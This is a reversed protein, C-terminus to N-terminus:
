SRNERSFKPGTNETARNKLERISPLNSPRKFIPSYYKKTKKRSGRLVPEYYATLLGSKGRIAYTRFNEQFFKRVMDSNSGDIKQQTKCKIFIEIPLKKSKCNRQWALYALQFNQQRWYESNVLNIPEYGKRKYFRDLSLPTSEYEPLDPMEGKDEPFKEYLVSRNGFCSALLLLTLLLSINKSTSHM